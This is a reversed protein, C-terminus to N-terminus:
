YTFVGTHANVQWRPGLSAQSGNLGSGYPDSCGVGLVSGGQGSCGCGCLNDTLATFGHKLWSMGLQEFRGNKLKYVSQGIVPHNNNNAQWLVNMNGINCSTTGIAFAEIGNLSTYNGVDILDGVIVDPGVQQPCITGNNGGGFAPILTLGVACVSVACILGRHPPHQM